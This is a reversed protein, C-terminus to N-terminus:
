CKQQQQQLGIILNAKARDMLDFTREIHAMNCKCEVQIGSTGSCKGIGTFTGTPNFRDNTKPGKGCEDNGVSQIWCKRKTCYEFYSYFDGVSFMGGAVKINRKQKFGWGTKKFNFPEWEDGNAACFLQGYGSVNM